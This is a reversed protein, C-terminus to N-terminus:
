EEEWVNDIDCNWNNQYHKMPPLMGLKELHSLLADAISENQYGRSIQLLDIIEEIMDSRKMGGGEYM